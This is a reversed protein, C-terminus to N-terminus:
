ASAQGHAIQGSAAPRIAGFIAEIGDWKGVPAQTREPNVLMKELASQLSAGSTRVGASTEVVYLGNDESIKLARM